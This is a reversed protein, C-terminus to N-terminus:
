IELASIAEKSETFDLIVQKLSVPSLSQLALIGLELVNLFMDIAQVENGVVGVSLNTHLFM